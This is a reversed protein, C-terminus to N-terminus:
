AAARTPRSMMADLPALRADWKYTSTVLARAAQGMEARRTPQSLLMRLAEAMEGATDAVMLDRGAQAEIGEFACASAVVPRAMAMAELVKNQIGRALQLPAVVVDAAAIWPRMDEVAGTVVIAGGALARVAAAPQRGAIVFRAEGVRPLVERAFWTVAEVNPPYDMQGTFLLVPGNGAIRPHSSPLITAPDFYDADIGNSLSQVNGLGSRRRFLAAEEESVFLAADARAAAACEIEFLKRAERRLVWSLPAAAEAAYAAFKDSDVDVFDMIFRGNCPQPVFQAMQGSFAYITDVTEGALVEGVFARMRASDFLTLSAPKGELLARAGAVLRGPSRIEVHTAGLAGGLTDRLPGINAEDRADDAFCGLHVRGRQALHRLLHWSRIKDGRDPPYPIRHALFLVDRSM